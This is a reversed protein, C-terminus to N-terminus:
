IIFAGLIALIAIGGGLGVIWVGAFFGALWQNKRRMENARQWAEPAITLPDTGHNVCLLEAKKEHSAAVLWSVGYTLCVVGLRRKKRASELLWFVEERWSPIPMGTATTSTESVRESVVCRIDEEVHVNQAHLAQTYAAQPLTVLRKDTRSTEERTWPRPDVTALIRLHSNEPKSLDHAVPTHLQVSAAHHSAREVHWGPATSRKQVSCSSLLCWTLTTLLAVVANSSTM